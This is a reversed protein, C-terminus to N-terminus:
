GPPQQRALDEFEAALKNAFRQLEESVPKVPTKSKSKSVEEALQQCESKVLQSIKQALELYRPKWERWFDQFEKESAEVCVTTRRRGDEHYVVLGRLEAMLMFHPLCHLDPLRVGFKEAM